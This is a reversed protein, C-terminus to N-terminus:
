HLVAIDGSSVCQLYQLRSCACRYPAQWIVLAAAQHWRVWTTVVIIQLNMLYCIHHSVLRSYNVAVSIDDNQSFKWSKNCQFDNLRCSGTCGIMSIDFHNYKRKPALRYVCPLIDFWRLWIRQHSTSERRLPWYHSFLIRYPDRGERMTIYVQNYSM